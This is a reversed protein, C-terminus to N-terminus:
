TLYPNRYAYYMRNWDNDMMRNTYLIKVQAIDLRESNHSYEGDYIENKTQTQAAIIYDM